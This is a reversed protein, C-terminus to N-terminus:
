ILSLRLLTKIKYSFSLLAKKVVCALCLLAKLVKGTELGALNAIHERGNQHM